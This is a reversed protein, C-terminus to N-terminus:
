AQYLDQVPKMIIANLEEILGSLGQEAEMLAKVQENEGAKVSVDQAEQVDEETIEQGSQQKQQLRMQVQQLAQFAENAEPDTQIGELASKLQVYSENSRIERELQNATDYINNSMDNASEKFNKTDKMQIVIVNM